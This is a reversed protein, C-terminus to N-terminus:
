VSANQWLQWLKGRVLFSHFSMMVAEILGPIGDLVGLRLFYNTVFKGAPFLFIQLGKVHKKQMYLEKARMDTYWNIEKLFSVTNQHPYHLLEGRLARTKGTIKWTEHVPGNWTGANKKALRLLRVSATEGHMLKKGWLVDQRKLYFGDYTNMPDSTYSLIEYSLSLPVEEDADVFLVWDGQAEGIAFNRQSAFDDNLKHKIIRSGAKEALSVTDDESMDDIVLVEGCWSLSALCKKISKEENHTLVVATINSKMSSM